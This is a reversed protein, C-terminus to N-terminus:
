AAMRSLRRTGAAQWLGGACVLFLMLALAWRQRIDDQAPPEVPELVPGQVTELSGDDAVPAEARAPAAETDPAPAADLGFGQALDAIFRRTPAAGTDVGFQRQLAQWRQALERRTQGSADWYGKRIAEAMRELIQAQATPNHREFWERTGLERIDTVYTDFLAQWQDDRVTSADMAQWGFLNNTADLVQLTGAYGEQQMAAIWHPNLYRTRMEDALFRALGITRADHSRLDSVLLQPAQGDLHRVAASLGGLFEFPHDTSLVGHVNSSRSMIAVQTGRLQEALLNAQAPATGWGQRGYAHSSSALFQRALAADDDWETSRLALDPVGTGYEGPANGFIRYRAAAAADEAPMGEQQLAAAIRRNNAAIPNAPEDLGALRVLADDLLRMFGDFQDRYVGTVQVVVDSRPRGLEKAPIIELATVRGGADWVPRLGLAHLIQAETVGLHRIAESSWLSFALKEPWAGGNGDRFAQVLQGYAAAAADYAARAPIKDAEFAYLNRGSHVEPSRIPDGGAGPQVFRGALGALLAENEQTDRLRRDLERARGAFAALAAPLPHGADPELMRRVALYAPNDRLAAHDAVFLAERDAGLAAYFPEGLQQMITSARHEAGAPQGFTHLGLPMASRALEHLQDHVAQLFGGFDQAARQPTWGLDEHLHAAAAAARIRAGVQERVMGEDLQQYEHILHHLDRLQDYLGAPAFPPTQHSVTVARGRRKAQIAEGVNDQIYPYFVPLSGLALWPYDSASLGRDKGPLWEQTGHTGLHILAHPKYHQQLYLYSAMYLHDPVSAIDHYHGGTEAHRPMQPMVLLQGVQWRPIVFYRRGDVERVARHRGPEGARRLEAQRQAPLGALWREYDALPYLAAMDEALLADLPVRGHVAGLMRQGADIVQQEALAEGVAHGQAALAAQISVISRPVNLNSAGLNKEGAPYNWFMLALKKGAPPTRRLAVLSQLKAILADAQEPLLDEVGATAASLVLPDSIGWGEPGALFVATTRAAVGSAAAPWDAAEGERFRLTQLVPVDLALFDRRRAEGNQMHSLNVLADVRGGGLVGALGDPAAADSWLAIPQLGAAESRAILEDIERTLMDAVVGPHILFAVRGDPRGANAAPRAAHWALYAELREFVRPAQPHYFGTSPLRQPAELLSPAPPVGEHAARALAFFRRFNGEGGAAYLEALAAGYRPPLREWAPRGGGVTLRPVVAAGPVQELRQAVMARDNPRPVDLVVLATSALAARLGDAGAKDVDLHRLAVGEQTAFAQLRQFKEASVFGNHLVQVVPAALVPLPGALLCYLWWWAFRLRPM